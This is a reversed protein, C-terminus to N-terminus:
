RKDVARQERDNHVASHVVIGGGSEVFGHPAGELLMVPDVSDNQIQRGQGIKGAHAQATKEHQLAEHILLLHMQREAVHARVDHLDQKSVM